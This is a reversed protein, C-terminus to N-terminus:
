RYAQERPRIVHSLHTTTPLQPSKTKIDLTREGEQDKRFGISEIRIEIVLPLRSPMHGVTDSKRPGLADIIPHKEVSKELSAPCQFESKTKRGM